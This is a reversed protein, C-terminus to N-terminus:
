PPRRTVRKVTVGISERMTSFPALRAAVVLHRAAWGMNIVIDRSARSRLARQAFYRSVFLELYSAHLGRSRRRVGQRHKDAALKIYHLYESPDTIHGGAYHMLEEPVFAMKMGAIYFRLLWEWDEVRRFNVDFEGIRQFVSRRALMTSGIGIGQDYHLFLRDVGKDRAIDSCRHHVGTSLDLIDVVSADADPAEDRMFTLQRELKEALWVDDDDLFALWSGRSKAIGTNRAASLGKNVDHRVVILREDRIDSLVEAVRKSSADDVVILELDRHTQALVSMVARRVEAPREYTPVIVSVLARM